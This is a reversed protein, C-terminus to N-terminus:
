LDDDIRKEIAQRTQKIHKQQQHKVEVNIGTSPVPNEEVGSQSSNSDSGLAKSVSKRM